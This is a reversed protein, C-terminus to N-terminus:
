TTLSKARLQFERHLYRKAALPFHRVALQGAITTM